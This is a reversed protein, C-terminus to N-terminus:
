NEVRRGFDGKWFVLVCLVEWCLLLLGLVFCGVLCGM